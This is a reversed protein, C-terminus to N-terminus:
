RAPLQRADGRLRRAGAVVRVLAAIGVLAVAARRDVDLPMRGALDAVARLAHLLLATPVQLLRAVVPARDGVLGGVAGSVFGWATLPGALPVAVLNAPLTVLPITRFVVLLVPAVGLQAALTVSLTERMWAPGRLMRAIPAAWM